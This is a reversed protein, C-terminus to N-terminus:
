EILVKLSAVAINGAPGHVAANTVPIVTSGLVVTSGDMQATVTATITINGDNGIIISAKSTFLSIGDSNIKIGCGTSNTITINDNNGDVFLGLGTAGAVNGKTTYLNITNDSGKILIRPQATSDAGAAYICTDGPKINGSLTQPTIYRQAICIDRDGRTLFVGQPADKAGAQIAPPVSIIGPCSWVEAGQTFTNASKVGVGTTYTLTGTTSDITSSMIDRITILESLSPASM